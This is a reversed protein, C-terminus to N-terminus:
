QKKALTKKLGKLIRGFWMLNLIALATPVVFVLLYGMIHLQMVQDYHRYVHNFLYLFLLIRAILWLFFILVGNILYANSRKMGATDLYWRMNIVPTTVESILVMYTYLQGEGSFMSYAVSIGSLSHHIVYEMGGLSPYLWFIVGLDAFFYGVSVGLGFASLPSSRFTVLGFHQRDSFLDSWFVFYLSMTTIFIAHATSIGRNNWEIRQIKTLSSYTKFYFTSILQTLDYVVKCALLGGLISTYPIFPDAFLYKKVLVEAQNQYSKFAVVTKQPVSM